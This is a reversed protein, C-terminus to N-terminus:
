RLGAGGLMDAYLRKLDDAVDRETFGHLVRARAAAGMRPVTVPDAAFEALAGALAPVDDPSVLFGEVGDRVLRRPGSLDSTVIPRGCAAAELISPPLGEGGRVPLCAVHHTAWVSARDEAAERWTVGPEDTRVNGGKPRGQRSPRDGFVSLEIEAGQSRALRVAEVTCGVGEPWSSRAITAVRLPPLAPPSSPRLAEPDIGPGVIGVLDAAQRDLRLLAPGEDDEFLYRTQASKLQETLLVRLAGRIAGGILGPKTARHGLGPLAYVRRSVRAMAAAAGGALVSRLGMCHVLDPRLAKLEAAIQGAAYGARMPNLRFRGAEVPVGQANEMELLDRHAAIPGILTTALGLERAARLAPPCHSAVSEDLVILAITGAM